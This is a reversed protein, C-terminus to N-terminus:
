ATIAPIMAMAATNADNRRRRQKWVADKSSGSVSTASMPPEELCRSSSRQYPTDGDYHQLSRALLDHNQTARRRRDGRRGIGSASTQVSGGGLSADDMGGKPSMDRTSGRRDGLRRRRSDGGVSASTMSKQNQASSSSSLKDLKSGLDLGTSCRSSPRRTRSNTSSDRMSSERRQRRVTSSQRSGISKVDEGSVDSRIRRIRKTGDGGSPPSKRRQERRNKSHARRQQQQSSSSSMPADSSRRRRGPKPRSSSPAAPAAEGFGDFGDFDEGDDESEFFYVDSGKPRQQQQSPSPSSTSRIVEGFGDDEDEEGQSHSADDDSDQDWEGAHDFFGSGSLSEFGPLNDSIFTAFGDDNNDNSM